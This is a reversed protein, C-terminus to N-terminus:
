THPTTIIHCRMADTTPFIIERPYKMQKNKSLAHGSNHVNSRVLNDLKKFTFFHVIDKHRIITIYLFITQMMMVHKKKKKKLIFHGVINM